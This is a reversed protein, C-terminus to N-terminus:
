QFMLAGFGLVHPGGSKLDIRQPGLRKWIVPNQTVHDANRDIGVIVDPDDMAAARAQANMFVLQFLIGAVATSCSRRHQFEILSAVQQAM